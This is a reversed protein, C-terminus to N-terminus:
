DHSQERYDRAAARFRDVCQGLWAQETAFADRDKDSLLWILHPGMVRTGGVIYRKRAEEISHRLRLTDRLRKMPAPRAGTRNCWTRYVDYVDQSLGPVFPIGGINGARLELYFESTSDRSAAILDSRARSEPPLTGNTFDGLEINLLHDHLAEIGGNRMEDLVDAYFQQDLKAPTWIVAHRRDDEELVVPMIENSLFIINVHNREEYAGMHKPNIRIWDGTIFNKLKNKVHYLDSRAVVEDAILFLKRSAWDNFKDEVAEQTIMRGYEGYIAMVAEFFMNKGAGQPGHVVLTTKMKAGPHQLPYALWRLVWDFLTTAHPDNSCMHQLLELLMDCNGRRPRTPWGGWLNCTITADTETPDFGVERKRVIRREPSESWDRHLDRTLCADRMDSLPLLCHEQADFVAGGQGYVLAYRELLEDLSDIPRLAADGGGTTPHEARERPSWGLDRLRQSVQAEVTPLTEVAHLDNFDTLKQGRELFLAVRAADDTFRPRIWAGGVALAAESARAAGTNQKKHREGCHPCTEPHAALDVRGKCSHCKAFQDDDACVLIRARKYRRRLAKAVPMLNGANFAVAVPLGTAVRLSRATAYGEVVLIIWDPAGLLCMNGKMALGRPWFDKEPRGRQEAADPLRYVQLGVVRGGVEHVPVLMSGSDTFKVGEPSIQKKRLYPHDGESSQRAWVRRARDAAEKAERARAAEIRRSDQRQQEKLAARQEPSMPKGKPAIRQAGNDDGRWVGCSGVLMTEGAGGHLEHLIYWGKKERGEGEVQCRVMRGIGLESVILGAGRLQDLVADYNEWSM